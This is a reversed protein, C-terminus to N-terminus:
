SDGAPPPNNNNNNTNPTDKKMFYVIDFSPPLVIQLLPSTVTRVMHIRVYVENVNSGTTVIFGKDPDPDKTYMSTITSLSLDKYYNKVSTYDTGEMVAAERAASRATNSLSTYDHFLM